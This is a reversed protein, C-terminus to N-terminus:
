RRLTRTLGDCRIELMGRLPGAGPSCTVSGCHERLTSCPQGWDPVWRVRPPSYKHAHFAINIGTRELSGLVQELSKHFCRGRSLGPCFREIAQRAEADLPMARRRGDLGRLDGQGLCRIVQPDARGDFLGERPSVVIVAIQPRGKDM